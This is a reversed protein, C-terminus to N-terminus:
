PMAATLSRDDWPGASIIRPKSFLDLLQNVNNIDWTWVKEELAKLRSNPDIDHMAIIIKQQLKSRYKKCERAFEAIDEESLIDHSVGFIWLSELSRCLLGEKLGCGRFGLPKIERFHNLTVKRREIQVKEDAFLRLLEAIRESVPRSCSAIYEQAMQEINRRFMAKQNVADFTLSQLKEQYVFKLWFGFVRDTLQLFDGWRRLVDISVLYSVRQRIISAPKKLIHAIEKIKNQGGSVLHLIGLYEQSFQSDQFRKLSGAFRQHLVGSTTFLLDELTDTLSVSRSQALADGIVELYWPNGGTFYVILDRVHDAAGCGQLRRSLFEISTPIDFPEVTVVEFNGFLLSLEGALIAKAKCPMSSAIVYLSTKESLLRQAWERYLSKVGLCELNQFEDVILVCFKGTEAHLLGPLSLLEFFVNEKKRREADAIVARASAVTKPIYVAAKEMLFDLDEKLPSGSAALFNYLLIGAFRRCLAQVTEPRAEVYVTVFRTDLFSDLFAHILSTKGVLEDGILAINQRYGDKLAIARKHLIDLYAKRDFFKNNQM